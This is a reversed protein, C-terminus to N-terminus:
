NERDKKSYPIIDLGEMKEEETRITKKLIIMGQGPVLAWGRKAMYQLGDIDNKFIIDKPKEKAIYFKKDGFDITSYLTFDVKCYAEYPEGPKDVRQANLMM